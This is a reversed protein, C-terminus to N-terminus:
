IKMENLKDRVSYYWSMAIEDLIIKRMHRGKLEEVLEGTIVISQKFPEIEIRKDFKNHNKLKVEFDGFRRGEYKNKLLKELEQKLENNELQFEFLNQDLEKERKEFEEIEQLLLNYREKINNWETESVLKYGFM